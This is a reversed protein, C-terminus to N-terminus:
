QAMQFVGFFAVRFVKNGFITNFLNGACKFFEFFNVPTVGLPYTLSMSAGNPLDVALLESVVVALALTLLLAWNRGYGDLSWTAWLGAGAALCVAWAYARFRLDREGM